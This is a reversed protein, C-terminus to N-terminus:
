QKLFQAKYEKKDQTVVPNDQTPDLLKDYGLKVIELAKEHHRIVFEAFKWLAIAAFIILVIQIEHPLGRWYSVLASLVSLISGGGFLWSIKPLKPLYVFVDKPNFTNKVESVTKQVEKNGQQFTESFTEQVKGVASEAKDGISDIQNNIFGGIQEGFNGPSQSFQDFQQNIPNSLEEDLDFPLNSNASGAASDQLDQSVEHLQVGDAAEIEVAHLLANANPIEVEVPKVREVKPVGVFNAMQYKLDEPSDFLEESLRMIYNFQQQTILIYPFKGLGKMLRSDTNKIIGSPVKYGLAAGITNIFEPYQSFHATQCGESWTANAGGKHQNIAIGNSNVFGGKGDTRWVPLQEGPTAPRLAVYRKAANWKHHYSLTYFHVGNRLIAKPQGRIIYASPDANWNFTKYVGGALVALEDDYFNVRNNIHRIALEFVPYLNRWNEGFFYRMVKAFSEPKIVPRKPPLINM